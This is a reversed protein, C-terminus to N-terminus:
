AAAAKDKQRTLAELKAAADGLSTPKSTLRAADAQTQRVDRETNRMAATAGAASAPTSSSATTTGAAAEAEREAEAHRIIGTVGAVVLLAAVVFLMIGHIKLPNGM